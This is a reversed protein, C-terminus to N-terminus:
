RFRSRVLLHRAKITELLNSTELLDTPRAHVGLKEALSRRALHEADAHRGEALALAALNHLIAPLDPPAAYRLAFELEPRAERYHGMEFHLEGLNNWAIITDPHTPGVARFRLIIVRRFAAAAEPHRRQRRFLAALNSSVRARAADDLQPCQLAYSYAREAADYDHRQYAKVGAMNWQPCAALSVGLLWATLM